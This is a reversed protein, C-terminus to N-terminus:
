VCARYSIDVSVREVLFPQSGINYKGEEFHEEWGESLNVYDLLVVLARTSLIKCFCATVVDLRGYKQFSYLVTCCGLVCLGMSAFM